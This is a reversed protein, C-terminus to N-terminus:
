KSNQGDPNAPHLLVYWVGGKVLAGCASINLETLLVHETSNGSNKAANNCCLILFSQLTSVRDVLLVVEVAAEHGLLDVSFHYYCGHLPSNEFSTM